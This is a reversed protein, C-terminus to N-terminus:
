GMKIAYPNDNLNSIISEMVSQDLQRSVQSNDDRFQYSEYQLPGVPNYPQRVASYQTKRDSDRKKFSLKVFEQGSNLALYGNPQDKRGQLMKERGSTVRANQIDDYVRPAEKGSLPAATGTHSYHSTQRQTSKDLFKAQEYGGRDANDQHAPGLHSLENNTERLTTKMRDTPALTAKSLVPGAQNLHNEGLTTQRVTNKVRDTPRLTSLTQTQGANGLHNEVQTTQRVTNKVPDNLAIQGQYKATPVVNGKRELEPIMQRLTTKIEDSVPLTAQLTTTTGFNGHRQNDRLLEKVTTKVNDALPLKSQKLGTSADIPGLYDLQRTTEKVTTKATDPLPLKSQKLGTSADIPGLYDLQRTTEKVTTKATDPLPLKSQKLGTSANMPGLHDLEKITQKMTTKASDALPLKSQKLGMSADMQGLYDLRETTQRITPKVESTTPLKALYHGSDPNGVYDNEDLLQRLTTKVEDVVSIPAIYEAATMQGIHHNDETTERLTPKAPDSVKITPAQKTVALGGLYDHEGTVERLTPKTSQHPNLIKGKSGDNPGMNGLYDNEVLLEKLTAKIEDSIPLTGVPMESQYGSLYQNQEYGERLTIKAVDCEDKVLSKPVNTGFNGLPRPNDITTEALTPKIEGVYSNYTRQIGAVLNSIMGAIKGGTAARNNCKNEINEPVPHRYTDAQKANRFPTAVLNQNKSPQVEAKQQLGLNQYIHGFHEKPNQRNVPKVDIEARSTPLLIEGTTPFNKEGNVNEVLLEPRNRFVQSESPRADIRNKGPIVRGAYTEKPNVQLTELDPPLIRIPNHLGGSPLNTYGDNLGPGVTVQQFPLENNRNPLHSALMRDRNEGDNAVIQDQIDPSPTFLPAIEQKRALFTTNQGTFDELTKTNLVSTLSGPLQSGFFPVMNNHGRIASHQNVLSVPEGGQQSSGAFNAINQPLQTVPTQDSSPTTQNNDKLLYGGAALGLFITLPVDM